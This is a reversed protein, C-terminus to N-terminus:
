GGLVRFLEAIELSVDDASRVTSAIERELQQRYRRRLRHAAVKVASESLQLKQSIASYKIDDRGVSLMPRLSEFLETKGVLQFEREIKKLVSNLVTLAWQRHYEDEPSRHDAIEQLLHGDPDRLDLSTRQRGGGRKLTQERAHWNCVFNELSTLLFTRFRGRKQDAKEFAESEIMQMLFAQVIDECDTERYGKRRLFAYLPYWYQQCLEAIANRAVSPDHQGASCVLSWHTTEFNQKENVM